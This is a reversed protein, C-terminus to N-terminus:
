QLSGTEGGDVAIAAGTIFGAHEGCLFAVVAGFDDPDGLHGVPIAAAAADVNDGVLDLLRSTRHSGPQVTNVTVGSRAVELALTKLYSTVAARVTNSLVMDSMPERVSKSTVGVIRGWGRDVMEDIVATCMTVASQLMLDVADGLEAAGLVRAQGRPPGGSNAVLIDVGGLHEHARAIFSTAGDLTSVDAQIAHAGPLENAAAVLRHPDRGCIVVDCGENVLAKATAFGLGSSSAAVVARKGAIGLDM